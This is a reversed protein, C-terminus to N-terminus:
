QKTQAAQIDQQLQRAEANSPDIALAHNVAETADQWRAESALTASLNIWAPVYSASAHIAARFYTEAEAIDGNRAALYGMQDQAEALNPNLQIARQLAAKENVLDNTKDLARALKYSLLPEDPDTALAERYFEAAKAADGAAMAQDGVESKGAAQIRDSQAAKVEQYIRLRQQAQDHDGLSQLVKALEYQVEPEPDGLAIAREFHERAGQLDQVKVLADGLAKQSKPDGPNLAVSRELHVRAHKYDGDQTELLSNLYLVEWNSPHALLLQHALQPAREAHGSVLMRCYLIQTNMDNPHHRLALDLVAYAEEDRSLLELNLALEVALPLSNPATNLGERLVDSAMTLRATRAYAIGLNLSQLASRVRTEAPKGLLTVVATYDKEDVLDQSLADLAAESDPDIALAARWETEAESTQKLNDLAAGLALHPRVDSSNLHVAIRLPREADATHGASYLSLGWMYQYSESDPQMRAATGFAEAACGFQKQNGFWTGLNAYTEASAKAEIKARMKPPPTCSAFATSSLVLCPLIGTSVRSLLHLLRKAGHTQLRSLASLNANSENAFATRVSKSDPNCMTLPEFDLLRSVQGMRSYRLRLHLTCGIPPRACGGITPVFSRRHACVKLPALHSHQTSLM